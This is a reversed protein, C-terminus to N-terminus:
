EVRMWATSLFKHVKEVEHLTVKKTTVPIKYIISNKKWLRYKSGKGKWEAETQNGKKSTAGVGVKSSSAVQRLRDNSINENLSGDSLEPYLYMQEENNGFLTSTNVPGPCHLFISTCQSQLCEQWSTLLSQIEERLKTENVSRKQGGASAGYHRGKALFNTQRKGQKARKVYRHFTKHKLMVDNQYIAGAFDGGHCLMICWVMEKCQERIRIPVRDNEECLKQIKLPWIIKWTKISVKEQHQDEIILHTSNNVTDKRIFVGDNCHFIHENWIKKPDFPLEPSYRYLPLQKSAHKKYLRGFIHIPVDNLQESTVEEETESASASSSANGPLNDNDKNNNNDQQHNDAIQTQIETPTEELKLENQINKTEDITTVRFTTKHRIRNMDSANTDVTTFDNDGEEEEDTVKEKIELILQINPQLEFQSKVKDIFDKWQKTTPVTISFVRSPNSELYVSVVPIEERCRRMKASSYTNAAM